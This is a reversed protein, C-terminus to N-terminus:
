RHELERKLAANRKRLFRTMYSRLVLLDFLRGLPGFPVEYIFVDRMVTGDGEPTFYHEHRMSRFAGRVMEDAFFEPRRMETIRVTLRQRIGLHRAEWTIEDGKECLGAARGGVIKEGTFAASRTHADVSRSLDFCSEAPAQILTTLYITPL